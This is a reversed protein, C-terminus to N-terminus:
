LKGEDAFSYYGNNTVIIHDLVSIELLRGAEVLKATLKVDEISPNINGSPHNHCLIIGSALNEIAPKFVLRSDVVTGSIGGKSVLEKRIIKNARNLLIVWFEEHPIDLLQSHIFGFADKSSSIKQVTVVDADKRRRGLELAAVISVAKAEGIGNFKILDNVTLKALTNLDNSGAEKLIRRALEVASEKRTGSGILIAILEADSLSHRGKEILKERPRDDEAWSKIGISHQIIGSDM